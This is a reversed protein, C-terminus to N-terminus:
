SVNFVCFISVLEMSVFAVTCLSVLLTTVYLISDIHACMLTCMYVCVCVYEALRKGIM